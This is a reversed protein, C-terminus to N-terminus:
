RMLSCKQSTTVEMRRISIIGNWVYMAKRVLRRMGLEIEDESDSAEITQAPFFDVIYRFANGLVIDQAMDGDKLRGVVRGSVKSFTPCLSTRPRNM